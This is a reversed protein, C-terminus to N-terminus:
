YHMSHSLDKRFQNSVEILTSLHSSKSQYQSRLYINELLTSGLTQLNEAIVKLAAESRPPQKGDLATLQDSSIGRRIAEEQFAAADAHSSYTRGGILAYDVANSLRIPIVFNNLNAQCKFFLIQQTEIALAIKKRYNELCAREQGMGQILLCALRDRSHPTPLRNEAPDYIFLPLRCLTSLAKQIQQWNFRSLDISHDMM